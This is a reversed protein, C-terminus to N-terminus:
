YNQCNKDLDTEKTERLKLINSTRTMFQTRLSSSGFDRKNSFNRRIYKRLIRLQKVRNKSLRRNIGMYKDLENEQLKAFMLLHLPSWSM